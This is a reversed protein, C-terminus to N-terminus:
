AAAQLAAYAPEIGAEAEVNGELVTRYLGYALQFHQSKEYRYGLSIRALGSFAAVLQHDKQHYRRSESKPSVVLPM